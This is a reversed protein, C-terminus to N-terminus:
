TWLEKINEIVSKRNIILLYIGFLTMAGFISCLVIIIINDDNKSIHQILEACNYHTGNKWCKLYTENKNISYLTDNFRVFIKSINLNYSTCAIKATNSPVYPVYVM